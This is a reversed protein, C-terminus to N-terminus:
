PMYWQSEEVRDHKLKVVLDSQTQADCRTTVVVMSVVKGGWGYM